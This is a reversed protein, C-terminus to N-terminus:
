QVIYEQVYNVGCIKKENDCRLYRNDQFTLWQTQLYNNILEDTFNKSVILKAYSFQIIQNYHLNILYEKLVQKSTIISLVVSNEGIKDYLEINQLINFINLFAVIWLFM